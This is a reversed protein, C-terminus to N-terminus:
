HRDRAWAAGFTSGWWAQRAGRDWQYLLRCLPRPRFDREALADAKVWFFELQRERSRPTTMRSVGDM